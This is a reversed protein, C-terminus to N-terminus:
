YCPFGIQFINSIHISCLFVYMAGNPDNYWALPNVQLYKKSNIFHEIDAVERKGEYLRVVGDKISNAIYVICPILDAFLVIM